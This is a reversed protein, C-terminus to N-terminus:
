LVGYAPSKYYYVKYEDCDNKPYYRKRYRRKHFIVEYGLPNLICFLIDPVDGYLDRRIKHLGLRPSTYYRKWFAALIKAPPHKALSEPM